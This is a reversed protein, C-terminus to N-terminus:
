NYVSSHDVTLSMWLDAWDDQSRHSGMEKSPTGDQLYVGGWVGWSESSVGEMFCRQKVPCKACIGDVTARVSEDNEYVDFWWEYYEKDVAGPSQPACLADKRWNAM